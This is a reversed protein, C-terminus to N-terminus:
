EIVTPEGNVEIVKQIFGQEAITAYDHGADAPWVGHFIFPEKGCNLTRHAWYPPIYVSIGPTMKVAESRGDKTMMLLYGEGQLCTYIEATGELAHFHGKTFFYENGVKGPYIITICSALHGADESAYIEYVEYLVPNDRALMQDYAEADMFLGKLDSLRRTVVKAPESVHGSKFDIDVKFPYTLKSM